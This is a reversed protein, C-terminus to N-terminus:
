LLGTPSIEMSLLSSIGMWGGLIRLCLSLHGQVRNKETIEQLDPNGLLEMSCHYRLFFEM